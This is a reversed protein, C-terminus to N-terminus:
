LNFILTANAIIGFFVAFANFWKKYKFYELKVTCLAYWLFISILLYRLIESDLLNFNWVLDNGNIHKKASIYHSFFYAFLYFGLMWGLFHSIEELILPENNEVELQKVMSAKPVATKLKKLDATLRKREDWVTQLTRWAEAKTEKPSLLWIKFFIFIERNVSSIQFKLEKEEPTPLYKQIFNSLGKLFKNESGKFREEIKALDDSISQVQPGSHLDSMLKQTELQIKTRNAQAKEKYLFIEQDQIKKLLEESTHEIYDLNTSSRIRLLKDVYDQVIKKNEPKIEDKFEELIQKIKNLIFDVKKLLSQRKREFELNATDESEMHSGKTKAQAVYEAKLASLDESKAKEKDAENAGAAVVYSVEFGYEDVLRQFAKYRSSAPITGLVKKGSKDFAEFEFKSLEQSTGPENSSSQVPTEANKQIALISINLSGLQKRAEEENEAAILGSLKKGGSNVATYQFQAM